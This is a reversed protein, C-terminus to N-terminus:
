IWGVMVRLKRASEHVAKIEKLALLAVTTETGRLRRATVGQYRRGRPDTWGDVALNVGSSTACMEQLREELRYRLVKTVQPLFGETRISASLPTERFFELLTM